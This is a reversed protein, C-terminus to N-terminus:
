KAPAFRSMLPDKAQCSPLTSCETLAVSYFYILQGYIYFYIHTYIVMMGGGTMMMMEIM